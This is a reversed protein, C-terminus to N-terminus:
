IFIRMLICESDDNQIVVSAVLRPTSTRVPSNAEITVLFTESEELTMDNNPVIAICMPETQTQITFERNESVAVFDEEPLPM